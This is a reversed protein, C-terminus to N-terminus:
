LIFQCREFARKGIRGFGFSCVTCQFIIHLDHADPQIIHQIIWARNVIYNQLFSIDNFYRLLHFGHLGEAPYVERLFDNIAPPQANFLHDSFGTAHYRATTFCLGINNVGISFYFSGLM